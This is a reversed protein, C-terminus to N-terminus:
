YTPWVVRVSESDFFDDLGRFSLWAEAFGEM